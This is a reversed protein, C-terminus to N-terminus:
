STNSEPFNHIILNNKRKDREMYEDIVEVASLPDSPPSRSPPIDRNSVDM